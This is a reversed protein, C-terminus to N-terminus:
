KKVINCIIGIIGGVVIGFILDWLNEISLSFSGLLASFAIYSLIIYGAGVIVGKLLSKNGNKTAIIVAVAISLIKIVINVPAIVGDGWEFWKILLAFILILGLSVIVAIITSLVLRAFSIKNDSFVDVNGM